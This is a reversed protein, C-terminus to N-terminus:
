EERYDVVRIEIPETPTEGRETERKLKDVQAKLLAIEADMKARRQLDLVPDDITVPKGYGRSLLAEAAAVRTRGDSGTLAEVLAGIAQETHSRALDRIIYNTKPRGPKRKEM